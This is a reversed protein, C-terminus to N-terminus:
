VSKKGRPHPMTLFTKSYAATMQYVLDTDLDRRAILVAQVAVTQVLETGQNIYCDRSNNSSWLVRLKSHLKKFMEDTVLLVKIKADHQIKNHQM